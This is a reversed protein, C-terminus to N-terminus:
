GMVRTDPLLQMSPPELYQERNVGTGYRTSELGATIPHDSRTVRVNLEDKVNETGFRIGTIQQMNDLSASDDNLFGPAYIWLVTAGDRAVSREILAREDRSLYYLDAMIYLKYRPLDPQALDSLLLQEFPAGMRSLHWNRFM